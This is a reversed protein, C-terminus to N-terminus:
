PRGGGRIIEGRRYEAILDEQLDITRQAAAHRADALYSYGLLAALLTGYGYPWLGYCILILSALVGGVSVATYLYVTWPAAPTTM